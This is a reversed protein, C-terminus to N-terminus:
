HSRQLLSEAVLSVTLTLAEYGLATPHEFDTMASPTLSGDAELFTGGPEVVTIRDGGLRRLEANTADIAARRPDSSTQGAPLLGLLLTHSDPLRDRIQSLVAAVGRATEAPSFGHSLNESGASVIVLRPSLGTLAGHEIRWLLQQTQDGALALDLPKRQRWQKQFARSAFWGRALSDGLLVLEASARGRTRLQAEHAAQWEDASTPADALPPAAIDARRRPEPPASIPAPTAPVAVPAAPPAPRLAAGGCAM